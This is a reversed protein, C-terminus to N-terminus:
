PVILLLLCPILCVLRTTLVWARTGGAVVIVAFAPLVHLAGLTAAEIQM